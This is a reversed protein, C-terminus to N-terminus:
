SFLLPEVTLHWETLLWEPVFCRHRNRECWTRLERSTAYMSPTLGLKKAQLEFATPVVTEVLMPKGWNPNGRKRDRHPIAPPLVEMFDMM